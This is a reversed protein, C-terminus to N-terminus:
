IENITNKFLTKIIERGQKIHISVNKNTYKSKALATMHMLHDSYSNGKIVPKNHITNGDVTMQLTKPLEPASRKKIRLKHVIKAFNTIISEKIKMKKSLYTPGYEEYHDLIFFKQRETLTEEKKIGLEKCIRIVPFMSVGFYSAISELSERKARANKIFLIDEESFEHKPYGM